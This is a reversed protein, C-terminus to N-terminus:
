HHGGGGINPSPPYQAPFLIKQTLVFKESSLVQQPANSLSRDAIHRGQSLARNAVAPQFAHTLLTM